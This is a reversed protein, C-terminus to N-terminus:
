WRPETGRLRAEVEPVDAATSLDLVGGATELVTFGEGLERIAYRVADQLELEGRESPTIARCAAFITPPLLWANMSVLPDAPFTGAEQRTPKEVIRTLQGSGDAAVLAFAGIREPPINGKAILSSTRFGLLGARPLSRLGRVAEVPYLNDGNLVVVSDTAAFGEATLVAHATGLPEQQVVHDVAVLSPPAHRLFELVEGQEPSLVLCIRRLGADALRSLAFGLL